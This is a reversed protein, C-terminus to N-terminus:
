DKIKKKERKSAGPISGHEILKGVAGALDDGEGLFLGLAKTM